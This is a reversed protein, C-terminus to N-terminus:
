SSRKNCYNNLYGKSDYSWIGVRQQYAKEQVDCLRDVYRYEQYIYRVSAYGDAVLMENLLKDDIFVWALLRHYKDYLDSKSDYELSINTAENLLTCTMEKSEDGYYEADSDEHAVEPADIGLFRVKEKKGHVMFWATDGDICEVFTALERSNNYLGYYLFVVIFIIVFSFLIGILWKKMKM